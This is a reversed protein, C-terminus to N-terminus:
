RHHIGHLPGGTRVASVLRSLEDEDAFVESVSPQSVLWELLVDGNDDDDDWDELEEALEQELTARHNPDTLELRGAELLSGVIRRADEARPGLSPLPAPTMRRVAYLRKQWAFPCIEIRDKVQGTWRADVGRRVLADVVMVAVAEDAAARKSEDDEYAGFTLRLGEGRVGRELDQGHFFTAGRPRKGRALRENALDNVDSWGDSQTYGANQLTVIGSADLDAFAADIRDNTTIAPWTEEAKRQADIGARARAELALQVAPDAGADEVLNSVRNRMEDETMPVSRVLMDVADFLWKWDESENM